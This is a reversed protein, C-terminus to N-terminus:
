GNGVKGRSVAHMIRHFSHPFRGEVPKVVQGGVVDALDHPAKGVAIIEVHEHLARAAHRAPRDRPEDRRAPAIRMFPRRFFVGQELMIVFAADGGRTQFRFLAAIAPGFFRASASSANSSAHTSAPAAVPLRAPMQTERRDVFAARRLLAVFIDATGRWEFGAFRALLNARRKRQGLRNWKDADFRSHEGASHAHRIPLIAFLWRQLHLLAPPEDRVHTEGVDDRRRHFRIVGSDFATAHHNQFFAIRADPIAARRRFFKDM